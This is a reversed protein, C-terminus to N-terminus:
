DRFRGGAIRWRPVNTTPARPHIPASSWFLKALRSVNIARIGPLASRKTQRQPREAVFVFHPTLGQEASDPQDLPVRRFDAIKACQKFASLGDVAPMRRCAFDEQPHVLGWDVRRRRRTLETPSGSGSRVADSIKTGHRNTHSRSLTVAVVVSRAPTLKRDSAQNARALRLRAGL